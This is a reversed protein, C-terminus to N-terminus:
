EKEFFNSLIAPSTMSMHRDTSVSLLLFLNSQLLTLFLTNFMDWIIKKAEPNDRACKKQCGKEFYSYANWRELLM